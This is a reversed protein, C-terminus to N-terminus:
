GNLQALYEELCLGQEYMQTAHYRGVYRYHWPEFEYGTIETKDAPYRLIFGYQHAHDRLWKYAETEGFSVDASGTNYMDVALGTQHESQGAVASYRSAYVEAEERTIKRSDMEELVYREHLQEQMKYTRYGSTIMIDTYGAEHLARLLQVAAEAAENEMGINKGYLTLDTPIQSLKEPVYNEGLPHQKNALLPKELPEEVEPENVDACGCALLLTASLLAFCVLRVIKKFM